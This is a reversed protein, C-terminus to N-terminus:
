LELRMGDRAAVVEVGTEQTLRAAVEWPHARWVTMGFHTIVARRPQIATVLGAVEPISLHDLDRPELLVVNVILYDARYAQALEPFYRTDPIYALSATATQFVFGYTETHHHQHRLPTRFSITGVSYEGGEHLEVVSALYRRLYRLVVPDDELADHPAFLTGRPELGGLTMAEIMANVDGSHDLHRHSLLVASLKTPDLKRKTAGV